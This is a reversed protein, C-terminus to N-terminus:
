AVEQISAVAATRNNALFDSTVRSTILGLVLAVVLTLTLVLLPLRFASCLKSTQM